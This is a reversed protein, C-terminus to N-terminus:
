IEEFTYGLRKLENMTDEDIEDGLQYDPEGGYKKLSLGAAMAKAFQQKAEYEQKKTEYEDYAKNYRRQVGIDQLSTFGKPVIRGEVDVYEEEDLPKYGSFYQTIAAVPNYRSPNQLKGRYKPKVPLRYTSPEHQNWSPPVLEPEEQYEGQLEARSTDILKPPLLPLREPMPADEYVPEILTTVRGTKENLTQIEKTGVQIKGPPVPTVISKIYEKDLVVPQVPKKYTNMYEFDLTHNLWQKLENKNPKKSKGYWGTSSISGNNILKDSGYYSQHIPKIKNSYIDGLEFKNTDYNLHYYRSTGDPSIITYATSFDPKGKYIIGPIKIDGNKLKIQYKDHDDSYDTYLDKNNKIFTPNKLQDENRYSYVYSELPKNIKLKKDEKYGVKDIDWITLDDFKKSIEDYKEKTIEPLKPFRRKIGSNLKYLDLSDNYAAKRKEYEKPDKIVKAGKPIKVCEKGNYYHGPPCPASGGAKYQNMGTANKYGESSIYDAYQNPVQIAENNPNMITPYMWAQGNDDEGWAMKHSMNQGFQEDDPLNFM